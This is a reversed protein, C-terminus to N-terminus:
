AKTATVSVINPRLMLSGDQVLGKWGEVVGQEIAAM